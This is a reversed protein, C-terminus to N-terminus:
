RDTCAWSVVRCNTTRSNCQVLAQSKARGLDNSGSAWAWGLQREDGVALACCGNQVWVRTRCDAAGTSACREIARAEAASRTYYNYGAGWRGTDSSYAIAAYQDYYPPTDLGTLGLGAASFNVPSVGNCEHCDRDSNVNRTGTESWALAFAGFAVMLLVVLVYVHAGGRRPANGVKEAACM